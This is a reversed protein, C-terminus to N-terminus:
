FGWFNSFRGGSNRFFHIMCDWFPPPPSLRGPFLFPGRICILCHIIPLILTSLALHIALLPNKEGPFCSREKLMIRPCLKKYLSSPTPPHIPSTFQKKDQMVRGNKQQASAASAEKDDLSTSICAPHHVREQVAKECCCFDSGAESHTSTSNVRLMRWFRSRFFRERWCVSKTSM